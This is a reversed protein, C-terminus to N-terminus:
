IKQVNRVCRNNCIIYEIIMINTEDLPKIRRILSYRNAINENNLKARIYALYESYNTLDLMDKTDITVALIENSNNKKINDKHEYAKTDEPIACSNIAKLAEKQSLKIYCVQETNDTFNLQSVPVEEWNDYGKFLFITDDLENETFVTQTNNMVAKWGKKNKM